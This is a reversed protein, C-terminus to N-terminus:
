RCFADEAMALLQPGPEKPSSNMLRPSEVADKKWVGSRSPAAYALYGGGFFRFSFATGTRLQAPVAKEM